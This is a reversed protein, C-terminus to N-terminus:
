SLAAGSAFVGACAGVSSLGPASGDPVSMASQPVWRLKVAAQSHLHVAPAFGGASLILDCDLREGRGGERAAVTCGRVSRGGHVAARTAGTLVRLGAAGAIPAAGERRDVIAAIGIGLAALAAGVEYASDSNGA